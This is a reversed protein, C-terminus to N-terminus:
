PKTFLGKITKLSSFILSALMISVLIVVYNKNVFARIADGDIQFTRAQRMTLITIRAQELEGQIGEYLAKYDIEETTM